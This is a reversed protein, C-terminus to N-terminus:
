EIAPELELAEDPYENIEIFLFELSLDEPYEGTIQRKTINNDLTIEYM